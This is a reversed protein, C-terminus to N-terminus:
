SWFRNTLFILFYRPSLEILADVIEIWRKNCVEMIEERADMFWALQNTRGWIKQKCSFAGDDEIIENFIGWLNTCPNPYYRTFEILDQHSLLHVNEAQPELVVGATKIVKYNAAAAARFYNNIM